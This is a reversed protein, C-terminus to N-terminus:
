DEAQDRRQEDPPEAWDELSACYDSLGVEAVRVSCGGLLSRSIRRQYVLSYSLM